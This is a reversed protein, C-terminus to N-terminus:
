SLKGKKIEEPPQHHGSHHGRAQTAKMVVLKEVPETSGDPDVSCRLILAMANLQTLPLLCPRAPAPATGGAARAAEQQTRQEEWCTYVADLVRVKEELIFNRELAMALLPLLPRRPM